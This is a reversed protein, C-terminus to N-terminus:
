SHQSDQKPYTVNAINAIRSLVQPYTVNVINAIRNLVKPKRSEM